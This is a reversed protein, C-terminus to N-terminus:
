SMLQDANLTLNNLMQAPDEQVGGHPPIRSLSPPFGLVSVSCVPLHNLIWVQIRPTKRITIHSERHAIVTFAQLSRQQSQLSDTDSHDLLMNIESFYILSKWGSTPLLLFCCLPLQVHRLVTSQFKNERGVASSDM